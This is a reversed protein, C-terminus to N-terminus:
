EVNSRWCSFLATETTTICRSNKKEPVSLPPPIRWIAVYKCKLCSDLLVALIWYPHLVNPAYLVHQFFGVWGPACALNKQTYTTHTRRMHTQSMSLSLVAKWVSLGSSTFLHQQLLQPHPCPADGCLRILSFSGWGGTMGAVHNIDSHWKIVAQLLLLYLLLYVPEEMAECVVVHLLPPTM